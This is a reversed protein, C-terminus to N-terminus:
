PVRLNMATNVFYRWQHRNEALHVCDVGKWLMEKFDMEIDNEKLNEWWFESHLERREWAHWM